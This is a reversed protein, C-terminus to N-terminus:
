LFILVLNVQSGGLPREERVKEALGALWGQKLFHLVM